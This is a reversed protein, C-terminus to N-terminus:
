SLRKAYYRWAGLETKISDQTKDPTIDTMEGGILQLIDNAQMELLWENFQSRTVREGIERRIQYIPVFNDLNFDKNLRDYVDLAVAKFETYSAIAKKAPGSVGGGMERIWKLLANAFKAGVQSGDFSFDPSNLGAVLMQQGKDTLFVGSFRRKTVIAIAEEAALQEFVGQYEAAKTGKKQIQKTLEGKKVNGEASSSTDWLALLLRIKTQAEDITSDKEIGPM